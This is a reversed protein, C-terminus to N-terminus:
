WRFRVGLDYTSTQDGFGANLGVDMQSFLRYYAGLNLIRADYNDASTATLGARLEFEDTAAFRISPSVYIAGDSFSLKSKSASLNSYLGGLECVFHFKESLPIYAGGGITVNSFDFKTKSTSSSAGWSFTAHLFLPKFLEAMLGLEIGNTPDIKDDKFTTRSYSAELAGYTLMSNTAPALSGFMQQGGYAPAAGYAPAGYAPPQATYGPTAYASGGGMGLNPDMMATGPAAGMGAPASAVGAGAGPISQPVYGYQAGAEGAILLAIVCTLKLFSERIMVM